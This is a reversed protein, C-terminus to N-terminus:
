PTVWVSCLMPHHNNNQDVADIGLTIVDGAKGALTAKVSVTGDSSVGLFPDLGKPTTTSFTYVANAIPKDVDIASTSITAKAIFTGVSSAASVLPAKPWGNLVFNRVNGQSPSSKNPYQAGNSYVLDTYFNLTPGMNPDRFNSAGCRLSGAGVYANYNPINGTTTTSTAVVGSALANGDSFLQGTTLGLIITNNATFDAPGVFERRNVPNVDYTNVIGSPQVHGSPYYGGPLLNYLKNGELRVRNGRSIHGGDTDMEAGYQIMHANTSNPGNWLECNTVTLDGGDSVDILSGPAGDNAPIFRCSEIINTDCRSKWFHGNSGGVFTVRTTRVFAGLAYLHHCYGAGDANYYFDSDEIITRGGLTGRGVGDECDHVLCNRVLLANEVNNADRDGIQVFYNFSNSGGNLNRRGNSVELNEIWLDHGQGNFFGKDKAFQLTYDKKLLPLLGNSDKVGRVKLPGHIEGRNYQGGIPGNDMSIPNIYIGPYILMVANAYAGMPDTLHKDLADQPTPYTKGTGVELIPGDPAAVPIVMDKVAVTTGANYVMKVPEGTIGSFYKLVSVQGSAVDMGVRRGRDQVVTWRGGAPAGAVTPSGLTTGPATTNALSAPATYSIATDALLTAAVVPITFAVDKVIAGDILRVTIPYDGAPINDRWTIIRGDYVKFTYSPDVIKAVWANDGSYSRVYGVDSFRPIKDNPQQIFEIQADTPPVSYPVFVPVNLTLDAQGSKTVLVPIQHFGPSLLQKVQVRGYSDVKFDANAAVTVSGGAYVSSSGATFGFYGVYTNVASATTLPNNWRVVGVPAQGATIDVGQGGTFTQENGTTPDILSVFYPYASDIKSSGSWTGDPKVEVSTYGAETAGGYLGTYNYPSRIGFLLYNSATVATGSVTFPVGRTVSAPANTVAKSASAPGNAALWVTVPISEGIQTTAAADSFARITYTGVSAPAPLGTVAAANSFAVAAGQPQDFRYLRAYGGTTGSPLVIRLTPMGAGLQIWPTSYPALSVTNGSPPAPATGGAGSGSGTSTGTGSGTGSGGTGTGTSGTSGGTTGGTTGGSGGSVATSPRLLRISGNASQLLLGKFTIRPM